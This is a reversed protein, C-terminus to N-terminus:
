RLRGDLCLERVGVSLEADAVAGGRHGGRQFPPDDPKVIGLQVLAEVDTFPASAPLRSRPPRL